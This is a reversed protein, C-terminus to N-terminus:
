IIIAQTAATKPYTGSGEYLVAVASVLVVDTGAVGVAKQYPKAPNVPVDIAYVKSAGTAAAIQTLVAGTIDTPAVNMASASDEQVKYDLTAGTAMAGVAIIHCCRDFGTCDIAVETLATNSSVPVISPVIKTRGLLNM